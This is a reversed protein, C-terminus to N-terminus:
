ASVTKKADAHPLEVLVFTELTVPGDVDRHETETLLEADDNPADPPFPTIVIPTDRSHAQVADVCAEHITKVDLEVPCPSPVIAYRMDCFTSGTTRCLAM